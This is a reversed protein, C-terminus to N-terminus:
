LKKPYNSFHVNSGKKPINIGQKGCNNGERIFCQLCNMWFHKKDKHKTKNYM